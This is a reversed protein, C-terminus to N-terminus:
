PVHWESRASLKQEVTIFVRQCVVTFETHYVLRSNLVGTQYQRISFLKYLYM